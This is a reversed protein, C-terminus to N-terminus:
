SERIAETHTGANFVIDPEFALAVDAFVPQGARM